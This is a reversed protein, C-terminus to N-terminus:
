GDTSEPAGGVNRPVTQFGILERYQSGRDFVFRFYVQGKQYRVIKQSSVLEVGQDTGLQFSWQLPKYGQMPGLQAEINELWELFTAEDIEKKLSPAFSDQYIEAYRGQEVKDLIQNSKDLAPAYEKALDSLPEEVDDNHVTGSRVETVIPSVQCAYGLTLLTIWLLVLMPRMHRNM